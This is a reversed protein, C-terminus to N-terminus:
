VQTSLFQVMLHKFSSIDLARVDSAGRVSAVGAANPSAELREKGRLLTPGCFFSRAGLLASKDFSILSLFNICLWNSTLRFGIEQVARRPPRV